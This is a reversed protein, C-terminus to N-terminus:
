HDLLLQVLEVVLQARHRAAAHTTRLSSGVRGDAPAAAPGQRSASPVARPDGADARRDLTGHRRVRQRGHAAHPLRRHARCGRRGAGTTEELRRASVAARIIVDARRREIGFRHFAWYPTGALVAAPPAVRLNAPGPAVTGLEYVLKRYSEHAADTAVKQGIVTPVLVEFVARTKPIRLGPHRRKADALAPERPLFGSDDDEEGCLAPANEAAWAAGPGWADVDVVGHAMVLHLTAPGQPTHTARWVEGGRLRM